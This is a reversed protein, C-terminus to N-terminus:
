WPLLETAPSPDGAAEEEKSKAPPHVTLGAVRLKSAKGGEIRFEYRVRSESQILTINWAENDGPVRAIRGFDFTQDELAAAVQPRMLLPQAESWRQAEVEKLELWEQIFAVRSLALPSARMVTDGRVRYRTATELSLVDGNRIGGRYEFTAQSGRVRAAVSVPERDQANLGRELLPKATGAALRDIRLTKQNWTSTCNSRVWGSAVLRAGKADEAGADLSSLYAASELGDGVRLVGMRRRGRRSYVVATDDLQCNAGVYIPVALVRVERTSRVRVERVPEVFGVQSAFLDEPPNRQILHAAVLARNIEAVRHGSNVQADIWELYVGRLESFQETSLKQAGRVGKLKAALTDLDRGSALVAVSVILLGLRMVGMM